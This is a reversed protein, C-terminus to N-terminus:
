TIMPRDVHRCGRWRRRSSRRKSESEADQYTKPVDPGYDGNEILWQYIEPTPDNYGSRNTINQLMETSFEVLGLSHAYKVTDLSRINSFVLPSLKPCEPHRMLARLAPQVEEDEKKCTKTAMRLDLQRPPPPYMYLVFHTVLSAAITVLTVFVAAELLFELINYWMYSM